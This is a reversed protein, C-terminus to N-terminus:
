YTPFVDLPAAAMMPYPTAAYAPGVSLGASINAGPYYASTPMMAGYGGPACPSCPQPACAGGGGYGGGCFPFCCCGASASLVALCASLLAIRKM